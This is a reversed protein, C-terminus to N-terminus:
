CLAVSCCCGHAYRSVAGCLLLIEVDMFVLGGGAGRDVYVVTHIYTEWYSLFVASLFYLSAMALSEKVIGSSWFVVSPFFLFALVAALTYHANCRRIIKVLYWAGAFALCSFYCSIIWYNSATFLGFVSVVKSLFLARPEQLTLAKWVGADM